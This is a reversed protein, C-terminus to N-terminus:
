GPGSEAPLKAAAAEDILFLTLERGRAGAAPVQAPDSDALARAVAEAKEPGSAVIWVERAARIAPFTLTLRTPPPKPSDYVPVVSRETEYVAPQGPFLSAVHGEPGIGLLLVDFSPVLGGEADAELEAAYQAAAAEPNDGDPGDSPDMPHVRGPHVPVHDLLADRAGAENREPDGSPVFREDGWWVDLRAWDVLDRPPAQALEALLRTGIGGGTLVVSASGRAAIAAALRDALQAAIARALSDEDPHVQVQPASM